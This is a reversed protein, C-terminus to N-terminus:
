ITGFDVLMVHLNLSKTDYSGSVNGSLIVEPTSVLDSPLEVM